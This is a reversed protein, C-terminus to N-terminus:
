GNSEPEFMSEKEFGEEEESVYELERSKGGLMSEPDKLFDALTGDTDYKALEKMLSANVMKKINVESYEETM